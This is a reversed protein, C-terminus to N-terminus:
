QWDLLAAAENVPLRYRPTLTVADVAVAGGLSPIHVLLWRGNPSIVVDQTALLPNVRYAEGDRFVALTGEPACQALVTHADRSVGSVTCEDGAETVPVSGRYRGGVYLDTPGGSRIEVLLPGSSLQRPSQREELPSRLRLVKRGREDVLTRADGRLFLLRGDIVVAPCGPLRRRGGRYRIFVGRGAPGCLAFGDEVQDGVAWGDPIPVEAAVSGDPARVVALNSSSDSDVTYQGRLCQRTEERAATRQQTALDLWAITCDPTAVLVRGALAGAPLVPLGALQDLYSPADRSTATAASSSQPTTAAGGGGGSSEIAAAGIVGTAIAVVLTTALLPRNM